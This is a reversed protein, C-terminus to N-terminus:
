YPNPQEYLHNSSTILQLQDDKDYLGLMGGTHIFLVKKKDYKAIDKVMQLAAKGSYVPDLIVGSERAIEAIDKLEKETSIAYGLGVADELRLINRSYINTISLDTFM